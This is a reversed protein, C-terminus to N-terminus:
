RRESVLKRHVQWYVAVLGTGIMVWTGPEPVVAIATSTNPSTGQPLASPTQAPFVYSEARQENHKAISYAAVFMVSLFLLAIVRRSRRRARRSKVKRYKM